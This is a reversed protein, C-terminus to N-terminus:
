LFLIYIYIYIYIFSALHLIYTHVLGEVRPPTWPHIVAAMYVQVVEGQMNVVEYLCRHYRNHTRMLILTISYQRCLVLPRNLLSFNM